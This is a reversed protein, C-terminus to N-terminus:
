WIATTLLKSVTLLVDLDLTEPGWRLTRVRGHANEIQQLEALLEQATLGTRVAM